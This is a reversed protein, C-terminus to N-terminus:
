DWQLKTTSLGQYAFTTGEIPAVTFETLDGGDFYGSGSSDRLSAGNKPAFYMALYATGSTNTFNGKLVYYVEKELSAREPLPNGISEYGQTVSIESLKVKNGKSVGFTGTGVLFRVAFLYSGEELTADTINTLTYGATDDNGRSIGTSGDDFIFEEATTGGYSVEKIQNELAEFEEATIEIWDGQSANAYSDKSTTLISEIADSIDTLNITIGSTLTNVGNSLHITGTVSTNLEYDFASMDAVFVELSALDLDFAANSSTYTLTGPLDTTLTGLVTGTGPNEQITTDLNSVIYVPDPEVIPEDNEKSCGLVLLSCIFLFAQTFHSNQTKM